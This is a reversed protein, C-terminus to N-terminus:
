QRDKWYYACLMISCMCLFASKAFAAPPSMHVWEGFCGCSEVSGTVPPALVNYGTLWTFFSLLLLSATSTFKTYKGLLLAMGIIIEIACITVAAVMSLPLLADPLYSLVYAEIEQSFVKLHVAKLLSSAVFIIGLAIRVCQIFAILFLSLKKRAINLFPRQCM